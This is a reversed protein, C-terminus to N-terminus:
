PHVTVRERRAPDYSIKASEEKLWESFNPSQPYFPQVQPQYALFDAFLRTTHPIQSFPLCHAKM